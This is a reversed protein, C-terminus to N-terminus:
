LLSRVSSGSPLTLHCEVGVPIGDITFNFGVLRPDGVVEAIATPWSYSIGAGLEQVLSPTLVRFVPYGFVPAVHNDWVMEMANELTEFYLRLVKGGCRSQISTTEM